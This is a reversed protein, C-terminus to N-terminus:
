RNVWYPHPPHAGITFTLGFLFNDERDWRGDMESEIHQYEVRIRLFESLYHSVYPSVAWQQDDRGFRESNPLETYDFRVGGYWNQDWQYQAFAYMGFSDNRFPVPDGDPIDNKAWLLESQVLLSRADPTEPDHSRTM